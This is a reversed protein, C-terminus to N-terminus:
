VFGCVGGRGGGAGEWGRGGGGCVFRCGVSSVPGLTQPSIRANRRSECIILLMVPRNVTKDSVKSWLKDAVTLFLALTYWLAPTVPHQLPHQMSCAHRM